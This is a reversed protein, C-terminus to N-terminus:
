FQSTLTSFRSPTSKLIGHSIASGGILQLVDGEPPLTKIVRCM